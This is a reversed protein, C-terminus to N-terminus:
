GGDRALARRRGHDRFSALGLHSSVAPFGLTKWVLVGFKSLLSDDMKIQSSM